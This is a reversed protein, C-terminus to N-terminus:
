PVRINTITNVIARWHDREEAVNSWDVGGWGIERVYMKINDEWRRSLRGLPWEKQREWWFGTHMDKRGMRAVYRTWGTRSKTMRIITPSSYLNHLEESHLKRWGGITEARKPGFIGRLVRNEFVKLTHEERLTLSWTECGNLVIYANVIQL